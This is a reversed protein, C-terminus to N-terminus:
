IFKLIVCGKECYEDIIEFNNEGNWLAIIEKEGSRNTDDLIIVCNKSFRSGLLPLAPFRALKNTTAPPGDIVLLDINTIDFTTIDYWSWEADDMQHSILPAHIVTAWDTLGHKTLEQRTKEAYIEDHELSYIHGGGLHQLTKAAVVTSVGSSCEVVIKPRQREIEEKIVFLFDPSGAWGRTAPLGMKFKLDKYITTLYQNQRFVNDIEQIVDHRIEFALIHVRVIKYLCYINVLLLPLVIIVILLVFTDIDM